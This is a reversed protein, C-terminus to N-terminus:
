DSPRKKSFRNKKIREKMERKLKEVKEIQAINIKKKVYISKITELQKEFMENLIEKPWKLIKKYEEFTQM